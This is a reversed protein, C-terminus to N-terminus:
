ARGPRPHGEEDSEIAVENGEPQRPILAKVKDRVPAVKDHGLKDGAFGAVKDVVDDIKDANAAALDKAKDALGNLDVM